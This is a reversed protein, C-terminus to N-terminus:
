RALTWSSAPGGATLTQDTRKSSYQAVVLDGIMVSGCLSVIAESLQYRSRAQQSIHLDRITGTLRPELTVVLYVKM